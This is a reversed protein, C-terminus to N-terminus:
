SDCVVHYNVTFRTSKIKTISPWAGLQKKKRTKNQFESSIWLIVVVFFPVQFSNDGMENSNYSALSFLQHVIGCYLYICGYVYSAIMASILSCIVCIIILKEFFLDYYFGIFQIHPSFWSWVIVLLFRFSTCASEEYKNKKHCYANNVQWIM